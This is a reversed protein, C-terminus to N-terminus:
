GTKVILDSSSASDLVDRIKLAIEKPSFPKSIFHIGEDL